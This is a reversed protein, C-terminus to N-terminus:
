RTSRPCCWPLDEGRKSKIRIQGTVFYRETTPPTKEISIEFEEWHNLYNCKEALKHMLQDPFGRSWDSRCFSFAFPFIRENRLAEVEYVHNVLQEVIANRVEPFSCPCGEGLGSVDIGGDEDITYAPCCSIDIAEDGIGHVFLSIAPYVLPAREIPQSERIAPTM